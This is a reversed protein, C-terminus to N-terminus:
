KSRWCWLVCSVSHHALKSSCNLWNHFHMEKSLSCFHPCAGGGTVVSVDWQSKILAVTAAFVFGAQGSGARVQGLKRRLLHCRPAYASLSPIASFGRSIGLLRWTVVSRLSLGESPEDAPLRSCGPQVSSDEAGQAFGREECNKSQMEILSYM